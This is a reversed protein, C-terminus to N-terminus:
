RVTRRDCAHHQTSVKKGNKAACPWSQKARLKRPCARALRKSSSSSWASRAAQDGVDIRQLVTRRGARVQQTGGGTVNVLPAATRSFPGFEGSAGRLVSRIESVEERRQGLIPEHEHHAQARGHRSEIGRRQLM